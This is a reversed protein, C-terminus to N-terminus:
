QVVEGQQIDQIHPHFAEWIWMNITILSSVNGKERQVELYLGPQLIKAIIQLVPTIVDLHQSYTFAKKTKKQGKYIEM